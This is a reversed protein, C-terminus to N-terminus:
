LGAALLRSLVERRQEPTLDTRLRMLPDKITWVDRLNAGDCFTEHDHAV